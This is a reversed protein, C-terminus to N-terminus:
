KREKDMFVIGMVMAIAVQVETERIKILIHSIKIKFFGVFRDSNKKRARMM